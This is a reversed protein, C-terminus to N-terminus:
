HNQGRSLPEISARLAKAQALTASYDENGTELNTAFITLYNKVQVNRLVSDDLIQARAIDCFPSVFKYFEFILQTHVSEFRSIYGYQNYYQTIQRRNNRDSVSSLGNSAVLTQYTNQNGAFSELSILNVIVIGLSDPFVESNELKKLYSQALRRDTELSKIILSIDNIDEDIDSALNEHYFHELTKQDQDLKVNNLQFAITIGLIVIILDFFKNTFLEGWRFRSRGKKEKEKM